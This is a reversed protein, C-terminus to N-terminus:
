PGAKEKDLLSQKQLDIYIVEAFIRHATANPHADIEYISFDKFYTNKFAPVTNSYFLRNKEVLSKIKESLEYHSYDHDVVVVCIPVGYNESIESLEHLEADLKDLNDYQEELYSSPNKFLYKIVNSKMFLEFAFSKFFNNEREKPVFEKDDEDALQSGDLVFLILDPKYDLAKHRLTALKNKTTYGGVGFNIFEYNLHPSENNLRKELVTHYADDIGVGAPLTYSGGIVAVRFTDPPKEVSYERDRLGQSNTKFDALKLYSDLNPKLDYVISPDSSAKVFGSTGLSGISNMKHYSFSDNGFMYFRITQELLLSFFIILILIVIFDKGNNVFFNRLKGSKKM